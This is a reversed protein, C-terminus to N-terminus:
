SNHHQLLAHALRLKSHAPLAALPRPPSAEAHAAALHQAGRDNDLHAGVGGQRGLVVLGQETCAGANTTGDQRGARM